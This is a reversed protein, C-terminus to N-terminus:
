AVVTGVEPNEESSWECWDDEGADVGLKECSEALQAETLKRYRHLLKLRKETTTIALRQKEAQALLRNLEAENESLESDVKLIRENWAALTASLVDYNISEATREEATMPTPLIEAETEAMENGGFPDDPYEPYEAEEVPITCLNEAVRDIEGTALLHRLVDVHKCYGAKLFGKCDCQCDQPNSLLCNYTEPEDGLKHLLFARGMNTGFERCTYTDEQGWRMTRKKWDSRIVIEPLFDGEREDSLTEGPKYEVELDETTPQGNRIRNVTITIAPM